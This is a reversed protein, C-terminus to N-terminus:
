HKRRATILAVVDDPRPNIFELQVRGDPRTTVV